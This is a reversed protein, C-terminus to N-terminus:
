HLVAYHEVEGNRFTWWLIHYGGEDWGKTAAMENMLVLRKRVSMCFESRLVAISM